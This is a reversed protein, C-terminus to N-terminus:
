LLCIGVDANYIKKLLLERPVDIELKFLKNVLLENCMDSFKKIDKEIGHCYFEISMPLNIKALAKLVHALERDTNAGGIYIVRPIINKQMRDFRNLGELLKDVENRPISNSIITTPIKLNYIIKRYECRLQDVDILLDPFNAHKKNFKLNRKQLYELGGDYLESCYQVMKTKPFLVKVLYMIKILVCNM